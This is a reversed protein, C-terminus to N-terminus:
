NEFAGAVWEFEGQWNRSPCSWGPSAPHPNGSTEMDRIGLVYFPGRNTDCGYSDAPYVYYNYGYCGTGTGGLPDTPVESILGATRLADIFTKDMECPGQDWGNCCADSSIPPYQKYAVKYLELAHRIQRMDSLRRADRMRELARRLGTTFMASLISIIAVVILLEILTFSKRTETIRINLGKM